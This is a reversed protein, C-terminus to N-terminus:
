GEVASILDSVEDVRVKVKQYVDMQNNELSITIVKVGPCQEMLRTHIAAERDSSNLCLIAVNPNAQLVKAILDDDCVDGPIRIVEWDKQGSLFIEIAKELVDENGWLVIKQSTM